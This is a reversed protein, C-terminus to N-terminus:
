SGIKTKQEIALQYPRPRNIIISAIIAGIIGIAVITGVNFGFGNILIYGISATFLMYYTVPAIVKRIVDGERGTLGVAACAMVVNHVCIMNGAAAGVCQLAVVWSSNIGINQAVEFQFFGFMMNSFTNSGALFAGMGGIVPAAYAWLGGSIFTFGEALVTPINEYGAAGGGSNLFVKVMPVAFILAAGAGIIVKSSEKFARTFSKKNMDHLFYTVISVAIFVTGPSYLIDLSPSIETGFLNTFKIKVQKLWSGIPLFELRTILLSAAMILYPMWARYLSFSFPKEKVEDISLNSLWKKDWNSKVDFDWVTDKPMFWGKKAAIVAPIVGILGGFISPFEPGLIVATLVYPVSVCLGGFLAFKWAGFGEKISRNKGFFRTLLVVMFLPVFLGVVGHLVAVKVGLDNIYQEWSVGNTIAANVSELMGGGLGTDLGVLIPTGVAGFSVSMSQFIMVVMAAAMAPYGLAVLLPGMVAGTSGFGAAGEFFAGFIWLFIVVQIRRDGTVDSINKRILGLAGSEKITNLLLVAGFVIYLISIATVVGDTSAALIQNTPVKWVFFSILIVSIFALIMANRASWRLIVLFLFIILIPLIALLTLLLQSM